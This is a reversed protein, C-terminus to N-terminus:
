GQWSMYLGPNTSHLADAPKFGVKGVSSAGSDANVCEPYDTGKHRAPTNRCERNHHETSGCVCFPFTKMKKGSGM